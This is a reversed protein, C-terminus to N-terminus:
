GSPDLSYYIIHKRAFRRRRSIQLRVRTTRNREYVVIYMYIYIWFRNNEPLFMLRCKLLELWVDLMDDGMGEVGMMYLCGNYELVCVCVCEVAKRPSARCPPLRKGRWLVNVHHWHTGGTLMGNRGAWWQCLCSRIYVCLFRAEYSHTHATFSVPSLLSGFNNYPSIVRFAFSNKM